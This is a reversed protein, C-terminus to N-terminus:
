TLSTDVERRALALYEASRMEQLRSVTRPFEHALPGETYLREAPVAASIILKVRRDYLVDVLWTFRRAESALRVPMEPVDSLIVTHFQSALELYDNQSRPGGCLTQFDFWVVGGARRRAWIARHEIMLKRDEDQAEALSEFAQTLAAETDANLPTLYLNMDELTRRRYDTGADVNIVELRSKLLEIAPLIRDRHLGNPYLEDPHFNSTTVISVRNRFLADLLRHLIMADTVDAVHFEDFCILRFRRAIRKGLEELPDPIGKLEQLERHVERMFEHFHLRTKRTLPVAQFFCDMLFSKGRGVGGYMYVGRPIPPRVLLKAVANGRRAKYAAWEDQCRQLAQIARLQAEDAKFGREALTQQYLDTVSTM